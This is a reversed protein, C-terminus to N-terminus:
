RADKKFIFLIPVVIIILLHCYYIPLIEAMISPELMFARSLSIYSGIIITVITIKKASIRNTQRTLLLCCISTLGLIVFWYVIIRCHLEVKKFTCIKNYTKNQQDIDGHQKTTIQRQKNNCQQKFLKKLSLQKLFSNLNLKNSDTQFLDDLLVDMTIAHILYKNIVRGSYNEEIKKGNEPSSYNYNNNLCNIDANNTCLNYETPNVTNNNQFNIYLIDTDNCRAILENKSNFGLTANKSFFIQKSVAVDYNINNSRDSNNKIVTVNYLMGDNDTNTFFINNKGFYNIKNPRLFKLMNSASYYSRKKYFLKNTLPYLLSLTIFFLLVFSSFYFFIKMMKKNSIGISKLSILENDFYLANLVLLLSGFYIFPLFQFIIMPLFLPIITISQWFTCMAFSDIKTMEQFVGFILTCLVILFFRSFLLKM